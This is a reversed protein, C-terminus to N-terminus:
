LSSHGVGEGANSHVTDSGSIAVIIDEENACAHPSGPASPVAPPHQLQSGWGLGERGASMPVISFTTETGLSLQCRMSGSSSSSSCTKWTLCLKTGKWHSGGPVGKHQRHEPDHRLAGAVPIRPGAAQIGWM